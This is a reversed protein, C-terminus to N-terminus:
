REIEYLKGQETGALLILAVSGVTTDAIYYNVKTRLNHLM